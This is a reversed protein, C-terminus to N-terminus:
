PDAPYLGNGDLSATRPPFLSRCMRTGSYSGATRVGGTNLRIITGINEPDNVNPCVAFLASEPSGSLLSELKPSARRVGCALVGAHFAYGVLQEALTHELLLLPCDKPVLPAVQREMKRTAVVSVAEFDSALLREM